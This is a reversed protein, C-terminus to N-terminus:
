LIESFTLLAGSLKKLKKFNVSRKKSVKEQKFDITQLSKEKQWEKGFYEVPPPLFDREGEKVSKELKIKQFTTAEGLRSEFGQGGPRRLINKQRAM